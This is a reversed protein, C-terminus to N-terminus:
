KIIAFGLSLFPCPSEPLSDEAPELRESDSGCVAEHESANISQVWRLCLRRNLILFVGLHFDLISMSYDLPVLGILRKETSCLLGLEAPRVM